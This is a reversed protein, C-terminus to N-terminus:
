FEWFSRWCYRYWCRSGIVYTMRDNYTSLVVM